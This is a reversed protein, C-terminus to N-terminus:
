FPIDEGSDVDPAAGNGNRSGLFEVSSARLEYSARAVGDDGTWIRPGGTESDPVLRGEVYVQRGKTLYEACVEGLRGWAAVRVWTVREQPNGNSDTWKENTAVSFNAVPTGSQLYRLDPDGGLYGTLQLRLM